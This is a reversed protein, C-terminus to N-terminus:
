RTRGIAVRVASSDDPEADPDTEPNQDGSAVPVDVAPLPPSMGLSALFPSMRTLESLLEYSSNAGILFDGEMLEDRSDGAFRLGDDCLHLPDDTVTFTAPPHDRLPREPRGAHGTTYLSRTADRYYALYDHALTITAPFERGPAPMLFQQLALVTDLAGGDEVRYDQVVLQRIEDYFTTWGVPVTPHLDFYEVVWTLHPFRRPASSTVELIHDMLDTAPIGHDWQLWRMVHRLVGLRETIIEVNRLRMMRARDEESFTSTSVIRHWEDSVIRFEERYEPDNMPANPLIRVQWTRPTIEHDLNFQLDRRYGEYTQGPLGLLLDGQLPYGHRRYDAALAVYHDVSINSRQIAELTAPDSSQLSLTAAPAVGAELLIDMIRTLHKTTNKAPYYSILQPFGTRRRIDAIRRATDVDRSMIGFNADPINLSMVGRDAAWQIEATVRDIDFKRIRSLTSSGWDCFTCGYPCGRNTEVSMCYNWASAPIHDFEGTLYPSPLEDLNTIRDRDPTRVTTGDPTRFTVGAIAALATHDIVPGAPNALGTTSTPALTNLLECLLHEGEGRTLVHAVPGHTDLFAEADGEYKPCSPGGHIVVLDPNLALASRAAALNQELSWVYDSCLLVAPGPGRRRLDDLFEQATEPRRIEYRDTLAGGDHHRAAATLMGLSLLPGVGEHWIAYVPIRGTRGDDGRWVDDAPVPPGGGPDADREAPAETSRHVTPSSTHRRELRERLPALRRSLRWATLARGVLPHPTRTGPPPTEAARAADVEEPVLLRIRGAAALRGLVVLTEESSLGTELDGARTPNRLADLVQLDPDGLVLHSGARDEVLLGWPTVGAVLAWTPAVLDGPSLPRAVLSTSPRRSRIPEDAAEAAAVLARVDDLDVAVPDAGPVPTALWQGPTRVVFSTM